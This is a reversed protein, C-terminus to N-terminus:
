LTTHFSSSTVSTRYRDVDHREFAEDELLSDDINDFPGFSEVWWDYDASSDLQPGHSPITVTKSMTFITWGVGGNAKPNIRVMYRQKPEVQDFTFTATRSVNNANAIPSSLTPISLLSVTVNSPSLGLGGKCGRTYSPAGGATPVHGSGCLAVKMGNVDPTAMSFDTTASVEDIMPISVRPGNTIFVTRGDATVGTPVGYKCV